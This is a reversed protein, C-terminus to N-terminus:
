SRPSRRPCAPPPSSSSWRRPGATGRWCAAIQEAEEREARREEEGGTGFPPEHLVVRDIPLGRAAAHLVLTAGSSHGYLAATGGVEAVLAALDEVEREVAYSPADGSDGRGRRDYNVVPVRRALAEALPQYAARGQLAGGVLIVPPGDGEGLLDFAITTGDPSTVTSTM